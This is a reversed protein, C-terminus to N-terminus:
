SKFLKTSLYKLGTDVMLTVVTADPGLEKAIRLAAVVNGGSTVDNPRYTPFRM